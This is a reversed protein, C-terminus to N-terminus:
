RREFPLQWQTPNYYDFLWNQNVLHKEVQEQIEPAAHAINDGIRWNAWFYKEDKRQEYRKAFTEILDLLPVSQEKAIKELKKLAGLYAYIQPFIALSEEVQIQAPHFLKRLANTDERMAEVFARPIHSNKLLINWDPDYPSRQQLQIKAVQEQQQRLERAVKQVFNEFVGIISLTTEDTSDTKLAQIQQLLEEANNPERQSKAPQPSNAEYFFRTLVPDTDVVETMFNPYTKIKEIMEYAQADPRHVEQFNVRLPPVVSETQGIAYKRILQNRLTSLKQRYLQKAGAEDKTEKLAEDRLKERTL